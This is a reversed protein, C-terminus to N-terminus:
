LGFSNLENMRDDVTNQREIRKYEVREKASKINHCRDCLGQLNDVDLRKSWEITLSTIHDVVTSPELRDEKLCEQCLPQVSLIYLRMQQWQKSQYFRQHKDRLTFISDDHNKEKKKLWYQKRM